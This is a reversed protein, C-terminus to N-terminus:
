MSEKNCYLIGEFTLEQTLAAFDKCNDFSQILSVARKVSEEYLDFFSDRRIAAANGPPTWERLLSNAYDYEDGESIGRIHCSLTRKGGKRREVKEAISKKLTTRDTLLGFATRCDQMAQLIQERKGPLAYLRTLIDEYLAAIVRWARENKPVTRKLGFEMPLEGREYRLLIVDLCSEIQNHYVGVEQSPDQKQLEASGFQIFPHCISDAAYHCLFGYVYARAMGDTDRKVHEQLIPFLRSPRCHHLKDGYSFLSEGKQWPLYRHTFLFDPGQAGWLFADMELPVTPFGSKELEEGVRRALLSHTIAAPM